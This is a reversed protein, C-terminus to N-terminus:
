IPGWPMVPMLEDGRNGTSDRNIAATTYHAFCDILRIGISTM